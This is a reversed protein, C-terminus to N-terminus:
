GWAGARKAERVYERFDRAPRGLLREVDTSVNANHGDLLGAFLDVMFDVYEDPLVGRLAAGYEAPTIPIYRIEKGTARAIEGIAEPFTLLRPGTLDYEKGNHGPETLAKVAVDAIDDIDVFPEGAEAGPFAFEGSLIPDRFHGESFNQAFWAGKLITWELGSESVAVESGATQPEGRGSLLVLKRAGAKKAAAVLAAISEAAGPAALDPYYTIYVNTVGELVAAYTRPDNWDFAPNGSRSAIRTPAGLAKLRAEVRSGTKGTGGVILTIENRTNM